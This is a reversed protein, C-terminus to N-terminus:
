HDGDGRWFAGLGSFRESSVYSFIGSFWESSTREPAINEPLSFGACIIRGNTLNTLNKENVMHTFHVSMCFFSLAYQVWELACRTGICMKHRSVLNVLKKGSPHKELEFEPSQIDPTLLESGNTLSPLAFPFTNDQFM